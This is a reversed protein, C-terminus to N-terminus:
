GLAFLFDCRIESRFLVWRYMLPIRNKKRNNRAFNPKQVTAKKKIWGINCNFKTSRVFRRACVRNVSQKYIKDNSPQKKNTQNPELRICDPMRKEDFIHSIFPQKLRIIHDLHAQQNTKKKKELTHIFPIQFNEDFCCKRMRRVSYKRFRNMGNM